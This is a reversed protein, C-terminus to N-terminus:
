SKLKNEPEKEVVGSAQTSQGTRSLLNKSFWVPREKELEVFRVNEQVSDDNPDGKYKLRVEKDVPDLGYSNIMAEQMVKTEKM